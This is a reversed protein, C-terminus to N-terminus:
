HGQRELRFVSGDISMEVLAHQIERDLLGSLGYLGSLCDIDLCPSRGLRARCRPLGSLESRDGCSSRPGSNITGTGTMQKGTRSPEYNFYTSTPITHQTITNNRERGIMSAGAGLGLGRAPAKEKPYRVGTDAITPNPAAVPVEGDGARGSRAQIVRRHKRRM